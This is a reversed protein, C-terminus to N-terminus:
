DQASTSSAEKAAIEHKMRPTLVTIQAPSAPMGAVTLDATPSRERILGPHLVTLQHQTLPFGMIEYTPPEAAVAAAVSFLVAAAAMLSARYAM